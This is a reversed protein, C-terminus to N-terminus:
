EAHYSFFVMHLLNVAFHCIISSEITRVYQYISGYFVGALFVFGLMGLSPSWGVHFFTFLLSAGLIGTLHALVGGKMSKFIEEQVFGRFFAEEPLVVLFLNTAIRLFFHSPIKFQWTITGSHLALSALIVVALFTLPVARVATHYWQAPTQLLPLLFALIFLGTLPKDYNVWFNGSVHWNHFGPLLHFSLGAVIAIAIIVLILRPMGSLPKRLFWFIVLLSLIPVLSFPQAVSTHFALIYSIIFFGGWLWISKHIWLSLFSMMLTYFALHCLEM